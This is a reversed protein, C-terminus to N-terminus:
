QWTISIERIIAEYGAGSAGANIKLEKFTSVSTPVSKFVMQRQISTGLTMDAYVSGEEMKHARRQQDIAQVVIYPGYSKYKLMTFNATVTVTQTASNGKAEVIEVQWWESKFCPNDNCTQPKTLNKLMDCSSFSVLCALMVVFTKLNITKM